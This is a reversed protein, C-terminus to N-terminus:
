TAKYVHELHLGLGCRGEVELHFTSSVGNVDGVRSEVKRPLELPRNEPFNVHAANNGM